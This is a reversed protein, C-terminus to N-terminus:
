GLWMWCRSWSRRRDLRGLAQCHAWRCRRSAYRVVKISNYFFISFVYTRVLNFISYVISLNLSYFRFFFFPVQVCVEDITAVALAHHEAHNARLDEAGFFLCMGWMDAVASPNRANCRLFVDLVANLEKGNLKPDVDGRLWEALEPRKRMAAAECAKVLRFLDPRILLDPDCDPMVVASSKPHSKRIEAYKTAGLKNKPDKRHAYIAGRVDQRLSQGDHGAVCDLDSKSYGRKTFNDYLKETVEEHSLCVVVVVVVVVAVVVVLFRMSCQLVVLIIFVFFSCMYAAPPAALLEVCASGRGLDEGVWMGRAGGWVWDVVVREEYSESSLEEETDVPRLTRARKLLPGGAMGGKKKQAAANLASGPPAAAM